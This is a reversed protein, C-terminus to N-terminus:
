AYAYLKDPQGNCIEGIISLCVEPQKGLEAVVREIQDVLTKRGIERGARFSAPCRWLDPDERFAVTTEM